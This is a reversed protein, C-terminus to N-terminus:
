KVEKTIKVAFGTQEKVAKELVEVPLDEYSYVADHVQLPCKGFCSSMADRMRKEDMAMLHFLM